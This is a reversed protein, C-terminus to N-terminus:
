PQMAQLTGQHFVRALPQLMAWCMRAIFVKEAMFVQIHKNLQLQLDATLARVYPVRRKLIDRWAAPFPQEYVRQRQRAQWYPQGLLWMVLLLALVTLILAPM